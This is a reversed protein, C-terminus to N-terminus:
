EGSFFWEDVVEKAFEPRKISIADLDKKWQVIASLLQQKEVTPAIQAYLASQCSEVIKQYSTLYSQPIGNKRFTAEIETNTFHTPLYLKDQIEQKVFALCLTYFDPNEITPLIRKTISEPKTEQKDKIASSPTNETSNLSQNTKSKIAIQPLRIKERNYYLGVLLGLALLIGLLYKAWSASLIPLNEQANEAMQTSDAASIEGQAVAVSFTPSQLSDYREKALNFFHLKVPPLAFSGTKSAVLTYDFIISGDQGDASAVIKEEKEPQYAEWGEPLDLKPAEVMKLNGNGSITVKLHIPEDTKTNKNSLETSLAFQGVLGSFNAPKGTEPLAKVELSVPSSKAVFPVSSMAGPNWRGKIVDDISPMQLDFISTKLYVETQVDLEPIVLQGPKQPFLMLKRMEFCEYPKGNLNAVRGTDRTPMEEMWFGEFSPMSMRTGPAIRERKYLRYTVIVPEGVYVTKKDPEARLIINDKLQQTQTNDAPAPPTPITPIVNNPVPSNSHGSSTGSVTLSLSNSPVSLGAIQITAPPITFKGNKHAAIVLTIETARTMQGNIISIKNALNPGGVVEFADADLNPARFQSGGIGQLQYTLVFPEGVAVQNKDLTAIFKQGFSLFSLIHFFLLFFLNRFM